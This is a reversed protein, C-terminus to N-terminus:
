TKGSFERQKLINVLLHSPSKPHWLGRDQQGVFYRRRAASTRAPRSASSAIIRVLPSRALRRKPAGAVSWWVYPPIM